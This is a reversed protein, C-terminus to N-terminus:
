IVQVMYIYIYICITYQYRDHIHIIDHTTKVYNVNYIYIHHIYVWFFSQHFKNNSVNLSWCIVEWVPQLTYDPLQLYQRLIFLPYRCLDLGRLNLDSIYIYIYITNNGFLNLFFPDDVSELLSKHIPLILFTDFVTSDLIKCSWILYLEFLNCDTEGRGWQIQLWWWLCWSCKDIKTLGPTHPWERQELIRQDKSWWYSAEWQGQLMVGFSMLMNTPYCFWFLLLRKPPAFCFFCSCFSHMLGLSPEYLYHYVEHPLLIPCRMSTVEKRTSPDKVPVQIWYPQIPIHLLNALDREVNNPFKGSAGLCAM